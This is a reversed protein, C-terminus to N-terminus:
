KRSRCCNARHCGLAHNSIFLKNCRACKRILGLEQYKTCEKICHHYFASEYTGVRLHRRFHKGCGKCHGTGKLGHIRTIPINVEGKIVDMAQSQEKVLEDLAQFQERILGDMSSVTPFTTLAAKVLNRKPLKPPPLSLQQKREQLGDVIGELRNIHREISKNRELVDEVKQWLEELSGPEHNEHRSTDMDLASLSSLFHYWLHGAHKRIVLHQWWSGGGAVRPFLYCKLLERKLKQVTWFTDIWIRSVKSIEQYLSYLISTRVCLVVNKQINKVVEVVFPWKVCTNSGEM